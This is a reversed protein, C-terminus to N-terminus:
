YTGGGWMGGIGSMLGGLGSGMGGSGSQWAPDGGFIPMMGGSTDARQIGNYDAPPAFSQTGQQKPWMSAMMGGSLGTNALSNYSTTKNQMSAGLYANKLSMKEQYDRLQDQYVKDGEQTMGQQAGTVNQLRNYYDQQEQVGLNQFAQNTQGQAAAGMALAQSGSTANRNVNQMQNAQNGYINREMASAGPMRANLLTQALGLRQQAYPSTSYKPDNPNIANSMNKLKNAASSESASKAAQMALSFVMMPIM